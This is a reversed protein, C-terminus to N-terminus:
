PAVNGALTNTVALWPASQNGNGAWQVVNEPAINVGTANENVPQTGFGKLKHILTDDQNFVQGRIGNFNADAPYQGPLFTGSTVQPLVLTVAAAPGGQATALIVYSGGAAINITTGSASTIYEVPSAFGGISRVPGSFTTYAMSFKGEYL